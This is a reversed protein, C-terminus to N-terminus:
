VVCPERAAVIGGVESTAGWFLRKDRLACCLTSASDCALNLIRPQVGFTRNPPDSPAVTELWSSLM